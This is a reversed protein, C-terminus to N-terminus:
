IRQTQIEWSARRLFLSVDMETAFNATEIVIAPGSRTASSPAPSIVEGAHAYVLGSATLLGGRALTPITGPPSWEFGKGSIHLFDTIANSPIEVKIHIGNIANAIANWGGTIKDIVNTKIWNWAASFPATIAAEVGSLATSIASTVNNFANKLPTIMNDNIWNWADIFPQSIDHAINSLKDKIAQVYAGFVTSVNDWTQKIWNWADIFPSTITEYLSGWTNTIWNWVGEIIGLVADWAGQIWNWFALFPAQLIGTITDWTAQLWQWVTDVKDKIWGWVTDWHTWLEYIAVVLVVVAIAILMILWAAPNAGFLGIVFNLVKFAVAVAIVGEALPVLWSTNKSIFDLLPVLVESVKMIAPVLASGLQVKLATVKNQMIQMKGASTGGMEEALGGVKGKLGDVIEAYNGTLTKTDKFDIGVGKLARGQGLLAKGIASAATPLDQGTKAAYDQVLPTLERLQDGNLGFQALTAQAQKTQGASYITVKSLAKAQAELSLTVLDSAGPIKKLAEYYKASNQEAAEYAEVSSKGFDFVKAALNQVVNAALVGSFTSKFRSGFGETKQAAQDLGKQAGTTDTEVKIKITPDAM